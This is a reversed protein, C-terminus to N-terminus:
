ISGKIYDMVEDATMAEGLYKGQFYDCDKDVLSEFQSAKGVGTACVKIDIDHMLSIVSSTLINVNTDSGLLKTFNGDLKLLSIPLLPITNFSSYGRGFNDLALRVGSSQLKDITSRIDEINTFLGEEPIDLLIDSLNCGSNSVANSLTSYFDGKLQATSINIALILGPKIRSAQALMALSKDLSYDGIRKLYGAGDAAALFAPPPIIEGDSEFRMFSEFGRLERDKTFFPQYVMHLSGDTIAKEFIVAIEDKSKGDFIAHGKSLARSQSASSTMSVNGVIGSDDGYVANMADEAKAILEGANRGDEPYCAIGCSIHVEMSEGGGEFAGLCAQALRKAYAECDALEMSRSTFIIFEANVVRAVIDKPAAAERLRHAMNQIFLDMTRRGLERSILDSQELALYIIRFHKSVKSPVVSAQMAAVDEAILDDIKDTLMGKGPLTTLPDVSTALNEGIAENMKDQKDTKDHSVILSTRNFMEDELEKTIRAGREEQKSKKIAYIRSAIRVIYYQLILDIIMISFTMSILVPAYVNDTVLYEYTYIMFQIFNLAFSAYFGFKDLAINMLFSLFMLAIGIFYITSPNISLIQMALLVIFILASSILVTVYMAGSRFFIRNGNIDM